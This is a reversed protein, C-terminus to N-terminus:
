VKLNRRPTFNWFPSAKLAWATLNEKSRAPASFLVLLSLLVKAVMSVTWATSSFVSTITFLSSSGSKRKRIPCAVAIMTSGLLASVFAVLGTPVPGYLSSLQVLPDETVRLLHSPERFGEAALIRRTVKRKM